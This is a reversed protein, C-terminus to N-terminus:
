YKFSIKKLDGNFFSSFNVTNILFILRKSIYSNNIKSKKKDIKWGNM